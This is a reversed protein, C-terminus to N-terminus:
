QGMISINIGSPIYKYSIRIDGIQPSLPDNGKYYSEEHIKYEPRQPLETIDTYENM